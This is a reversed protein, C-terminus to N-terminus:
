NKWMDFISHFGALLGKKFEYAEICTESIRTKNTEPENIKRESIGEKTGSVDILKVDKV